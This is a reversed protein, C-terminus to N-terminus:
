RGHTSERASQRRVPESRWHQKALGCKKDRGRMAAERASRHGLWEGMARQGCPKSVAAIASARIGSSRSEPVM